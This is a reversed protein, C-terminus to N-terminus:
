LHRLHLPIRFHCWPKAHMPTIPSNVNCVASKASQLCGQTKCVEWNAHTPTIPSNVNLYWSFMHVQWSAAFTKWIDCWTDKKIVQTPDESPVLQLLALDQRVKAATEADVGLDRLKKAARPHTHM